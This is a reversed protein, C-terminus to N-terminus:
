NNIILTTANALLIHSFPERSNYFVNYTNEDIVSFTNNQFNYSSVFYFDENYPLEVPSNNSSYTKTNNNYGFLLFGDSYSVLSLFGQSFMLYDYSNKLENGEYINLKQNQGVVNENTNTTFLWYVNQIDNHPTSDVELYFQIAM